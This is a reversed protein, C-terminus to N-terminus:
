DKFIAKCAITFDKFIPTTVTGTANEFRHNLEYINNKLIYTEIAKTEPHVLWYEKVKNEQYLNFKENYDKKATSVSLVEVILDPAGACGRDDLKTKDCIVCIDPQVVTETEIESQGINKILRVDFPSNYVDCDKNQLYNAIQFFINGEIKQHLRNPAPSMKYVWGKILEVRESFQWKLYDAYTYQRSFDLENINYIIGNM